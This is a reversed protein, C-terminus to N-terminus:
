LKTVDPNLPDLRKLNELAIRKDEPTSKQISYLALWSDFSNPNYEVAKLAYERAQDHLKSNELLQIVQVIRASSMPKLYGPTLSTQVNLFNGSKAASAWAMDASLPPVAVLFGVLAGIGAFLNVSLFSVNKNKRTLKKSTATAGTSEHNVRTAREYGIVAGTLLWGWVALGIQNISILSQLQYGLWVASLTAFIPDFKQSRNIFKIISTLSLILISLYSTLLLIGGSAFFEVVVNHASNSVVQVGPTTLAQLDRELRYNDGYADMGVGTFPNNLGMNIASKWYQERFAMTGQYLYQTLPGIKFVGAVSILSVIGFAALYVLSLPRFRSNRIRLYIVFASCAFAVVYGQLSDTFSMEYFALGTAAIAILRSSVKAESNLAFAICAAIFFGLFSSIFNPNGLTGLLAGYPNNWNIPDSFALVYASYLVNVSGALLLGVVITQFAKLSRLGSAAVLIIALSLYAVLGTNRGYTGYLNQTLPSESALTAVFAAVVFVVVSAILIKNGQFFAGDRRGLLIALLSFAMGGLLFLKPANVPDTVSGTILFLTTISAGLGLIKSVFKEDSALYM